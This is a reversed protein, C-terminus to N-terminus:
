IEKLEGDNQWIKIFNTEAQSVSIHDVLVAQDVEGRARVGWVQGHAGAQDVHDGLHCLELM